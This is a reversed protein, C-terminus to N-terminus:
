PQVPDYQVPPTKEKEKNAKDQAKDADKQKDSDLAKRKAKDAKAQAKNAKEQQKLEQKQDKTMQQNTQAQSDSQAHVPLAPAAFAVTLALTSFLRSRMVLFVEM